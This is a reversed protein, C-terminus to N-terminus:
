KKNNSFKVEQNHPLTNLFTKMPYLSAIPVKLSTESAIRKISKIAMWFKSNRWLRRTWNTFSTKFLFISFNFKIWSPQVQHSMRSNIQLVVYFHSTRLFQIHEIRHSSALCPFKELWLFHLLEIKGKPQHIFLFRKFYHNSNFVNHDTKM